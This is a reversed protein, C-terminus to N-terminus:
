EDHEVTKSRVWSSRSAHASPTSSKPQVTTPKSTTARAFSPDELSPAALTERKFVRNHLAPVFLILAAVVIVAAVVAIPVAYAAPNLRGKQNKGGVEDTGTFLALLSPDYTLNTWYPTDILNSGKCAVIIAPVLVGEVDHTLQPEEGDDKNSTTFDRDDLTIIKLFSMAIFTTASTANYSVMNVQNWYGLTGPQDLQAIFAPFSM